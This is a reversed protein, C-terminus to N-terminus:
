GRNGQIGQKEPATVSLIRPAVIYREDELRQGHCYSAVGLVFQRRVVQFSLM